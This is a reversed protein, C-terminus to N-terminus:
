MMCAASAANRRLLHTYSGDDGILCDRSADVEDASLITAAIWSLACV